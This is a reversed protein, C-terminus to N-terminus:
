CIKNCKKFFSDISLFLNNLYFSCYWKNNFFVRHAVGVTNHIKNMKYFTERIILGKYNYEIIAPEFARHLKDKYYYDIRKINGNVSYFEVFAPGNENHILNMNINNIIFFNYSIIDSIKNDNYKIYLFDEYPLFKVFIGINNNNNNNNSDSNNYIKYNKPKRFFDLIDNKSCTLSNLM